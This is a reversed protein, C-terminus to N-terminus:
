LQWAPNHYLSYLLLHTLSILTCYYFSYIKLTSLNLVKLAIVRYITLKFKVTATFIYQYLFQTDASLNYSYNFGSNM